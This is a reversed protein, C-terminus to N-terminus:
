HVTSEPLPLSVIKGPGSDVEVATGPQSFATKLIALALPRGLSPSFSASTIAGIRAGQHYVETGRAPLSDREIAIGALRRHFRGRYTIRAIIEQGRYCGKDLSIAADLGMELPLTREDMDIGYWPIGAETRAWDLAKMGVAKQSGQANFDHWIDAICEQPCWLDYGGSGTRDRHVAICKRFSREFALHELSRLREVKAGSVSEIMRASAPGQISIVGWDRGIDDLVVRESVIHKRLTAIIRGTACPPCELWLEDDFAYVWLDSEMLGQRTLLAAHCGTGAALIRINNTLMNHLYSVRDRGTVRLKGLFCFDLAGSQRRLIEYETRTDGYHSPIEWGCWEQFHAGAAAQFTHLPTKDTM